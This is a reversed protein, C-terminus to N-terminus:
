GSSRIPLLLTCESQGSKTKQWYTKHQERGAAAVRVNRHAHSPRRDAWVTIVLRRRIITSGVTVVAGLPELAAYENASTGIIVTRVAEVPVHIVREVKSFTIM